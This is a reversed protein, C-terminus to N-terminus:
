TRESAVRQARATQPSVLGSIRRARADSPTCRIRHRPL